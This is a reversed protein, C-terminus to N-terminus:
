HHNLQMIIWEFNIKKKKEKKWQPKSLTAALGNIRSVVDTVVATVCCVDHHVIVLSIDHENSRWIISIIYLFATNIKRPWETSIPKVRRRPQSSYAYVKNRFCLQASHMWQKLKTGHANWELVSHAPLATSGLTLGVILSDVVKRGSGLSSQIWKFRRQVYPKILPSTSVSQDM